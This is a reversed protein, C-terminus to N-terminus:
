VKKSTINIREEMMLLIYTKFIIIKCRETLLILESIIIYEWKIILNNVKLWM